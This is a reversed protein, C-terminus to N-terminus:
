EGGGDKPETGANATVDGVHGADKALGVAIKLLECRRARNRELGNNVAQLKNLLRFDGHGLDTLEKAIQDPTM